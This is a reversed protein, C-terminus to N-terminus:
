FFVKPDGPRRLLEDHEQAKGVLVATQHTVQHHAELGQGLTQALLPVDGGAVDATSFPFMVSGGEHGVQAVGM